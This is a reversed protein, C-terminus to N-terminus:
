YNHSIAQELSLISDQTVVVELVGKSASGLLIKGKPSEQRCRISDDLIKVGKKENENFEYVGSQM